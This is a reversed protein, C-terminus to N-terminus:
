PKRIVAFGGQKDSIWVNAFGPCCIHMLDAAGDANFDGGQWSGYQMAYDPSPQVVTVAFGGAGDSRWLHAYNPCCLHLVDTDGDADYDASLWKGWQMGYDASPQFRLVQFTAGNSLWVNAWNPCCIHMLDARGDKNFDGLTWSGYQLGYDPSPQVALITFRGDGTSLWLNAYNPCCAHLIDTKGDGNYDGPWWAGYQIGYDSSPQFTSLAFGGGGTAMWVNAYNPCCLHMLDTLGDGNFDGSRWTGTQMGYDASPQFTSIAFNGNGQSLWVNAWNPCCWHILDTKGDGNFEGTGWGGFQMGYDGSPSITSLTVEGSPGTTWISARNSCCLHILDSRGDGNFDGQQWSGTQLDLELTVNVIAPAGAAFLSEFRLQANYTGSVLSTADAHVTVEGPLFGLDGGRAVGQHNSVRLWPASSTVRWALLGSGGNVVSLRVPFSQGGPLANLAVSGPAIGILPAGLAQERSVAPGTPDQHAPNPTPIDMAACQVNFSCPEWNSVALPGGFAPDGLNPLHVEQPAWLQQGGRVPPHAVCGLVLEQYPYQGRNHGFGDGEPGCSYQPRNPDYAPNLPHNKFAFGNYGWIAFYWDEIIRPDRNGVIPRFEPAQNWKDALIHAGRAINFAYHGGIMAQDLNPIGSVNQMGSTIQMLGYGCDHSILTPGVEGYQVVPDYSAQAWGSEIWAIAKLVVPPIYGGTLSGSGAGRPGTELSPVAFSAHEPFLANYGALEAARAYSNRYDSAEYTQM